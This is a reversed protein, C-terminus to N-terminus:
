CGGEYMKCWSVPVLCRAAFAKKAWNWLAQRLKARYSYSLLFDLKLFLYFIHRSIASKCQSTHLSLQLIATEVDRDYKLKDGKM